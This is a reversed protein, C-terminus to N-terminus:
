RVCRIFLDNDKNKPNISSTYSFLVAWATKDDASDTTSSWYFGSTETFFIDDTNPTQNSYAILSQLENRNPLRWDNYGAWEGQECTSIGEEWSMAGQLGKIWFLGTSADFITNDMKDLYKDNVSPTYDRVARAYFRNTQYTGAFAEGSSFNVVYRCNQCARNDSSTATVTRYIGESTNPFFSMDIYPAPYANGSHVISLLEQATPPRWDTFGGFNSSNLQNTLSLLNYITFTINKDQISGDETKVEWVLGTINDRTMIWGDTFTASDDLEIGDEGLKTYFHRNIRYDSDEGFTDSYSATQGTDPIPYENGVEVICNEDIDGYGADGYCQNDLRDCIEPAGPYIDSNDIVCDTNDGSRDNDFDAWETPDSPFSDSNDGQGDGDSDIWESSDDPFEDSNDGIGDKDSDIWENPDEPFEDVKNVFGDHDDDEVGYHYGDGDEDLIARWKDVDQLAAQIHSIIIEVSYDDFNFWGDTYTTTDAIEDVIESLSSNAPLGYYIAVSSQSSGWSYFEKLYEKAIEINTREKTAKDVDWALYFNSFTNLATSGITYACGHPNNINLAACLLLDTWVDIIENTYEDQKSLINAEMNIFTYSEEVALKILEDDTFTNGVIDNLNILQGAVFTATHIMENLKEAEAESKELKMQEADLNMRAAELYIALNLKESCTANIKGGFFFDSEYDNVGCPYKSYDLKDSSSLLLTSFHNTEVVIFNNDYDYEVIALREWGSKDFNTIYVVLESEKVETGDLLGDNDADPYDISVTVLKSFRTGSPGMTISYLPNSIDPLFELISTDTVEPVLSIIRGGSLAGNQIVVEASYGTNIPDNTVINGGNADITLSTCNPYLQGDCNNDIGDCVEDAGPFISFDGDNCDGQGVSIGDDDEDIDAFVSTTFSFRARASNDFTVRKTISGGAQLVADSTVFTIYLKGDETDGDPDKLTVSSNTVSDVVLLVPGILAKDSTNTLTVNLFSTKTRRDYRIGSKTVEVLDTVDVVAEEALTFTTTLCLLILAGLGIITHSLHFRM